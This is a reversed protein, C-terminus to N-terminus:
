LRISCRGCAVFPAWTFNSYMVSGPNQPSFKMNKRQGIEYGPHRVMNSSQSGAAWFDLNLVCTIGALSPKRHTIEALRIQNNYPFRCHTITFNVKGNYVSRFSQPPFIASRPSRRFCTVLTFSGRHM